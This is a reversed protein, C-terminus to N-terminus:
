LAVDLMASMDLGATVAQEVKDAARGIGQAVFVLEDHRLAVVDNDVPAERVGATGDRPYRGVHDPDLVTAEGLMPVHQLVLRGFGFRFAPSRHQAVTGRGSVSGGAGVSTSAPSSGGSLPRGSEFRRRGAQSAPM